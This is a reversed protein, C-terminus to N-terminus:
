KRVIQFNKGEFLGLLEAVLNSIGSFSEQIGYFVAQPASVESNPEVPRVSNLSIQASDLASLLKKITDQLETDVNFPSVIRRIKSSAETLLNRADNFKINPDLRNIKQGLETLDILVSQIKVIQGAETAARKAQRAELFALISFVLGAIGIVLFIWFDAKQWFGVQLANIIPQVVNSLAALMEPNM